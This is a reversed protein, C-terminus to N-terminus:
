VAGSALLAIKTDFVEWAIFFTLGLILLYYLLNLPEAGLINHGVLGGALAFSLSYLKVHFSANYNTWDRIKGQWILKAMDDAEIRYSHTDIAFSIGSGNRDLTQPALQTRGVLFVAF